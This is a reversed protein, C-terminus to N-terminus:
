YSGRLVITTYFNRTKSLDGRTATITAEVKVAETSANTLQRVIFSDITTNSSMISGQAVGNERIKVLSNEVYFEVTTASGGSDTTNLTLRGPHSGLTSQATDVSNASRMDRSMRELLATASSNLDRSVRLDAFARTMSLTSQIALVTIVTLLAIYVVLEVM